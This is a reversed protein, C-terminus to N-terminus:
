PVAKCPMCVTIPKTCCGDVTAACGAICAACAIYGAKGKANKCSACSACGACVKLDIAGCGPGDYMTTTSCTGCKGQVEAPHLDVLGAGSVAMAKTVLVDNGQKQWMAYDRHGAGQVGSFERAVLVRADDAALATVTMEGGGRLRHRAGQVAVPQFTFSDMGARTMLLRFDSDVALRDMAGSLYGSPLDHYGASQLATTGAALRRVPAGATSNILRPSAVATVAVAGGVCAARLFGARSLSAQDSRRSTREGLALVVRGARRFGLLRTLTAAMGAGIHFRVGEEDVQILTPRWPPNKGYFASRLDKVMPDALPVVEIESAIENSVVESIRACRGCSSDFALFFHVPAMAVM